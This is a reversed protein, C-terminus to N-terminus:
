FPGTTVTAGNNTITWPGGANAVSNDKITASQCTLMKTTAANNLPSTPVTASTFGSGVNFRLNSIKGDFYRTVYVAKGISPPNSSTVLTGSFTQSVGLSSGVFIRVTGSVRSAAVYTWTNLSVAITSSYQQGGSSLARAITPQRSSNIFFSLKNRYTIDVSNLYGFDLIVAGITPTSELYVFCEISFDNSGIAFASDTPYTMYTSNYDYSYNQVPPNGAVGIAKAAGFASLIPM